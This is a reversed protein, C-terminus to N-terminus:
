DCFEKGGPNTLCGEDTGLARPGKGRYTTTETQTWNGGGIQGGPNTAVKKEDCTTIGRDFTCEDWDHHPSDAFAGGALTALFLSALALVAAARLRIMLLGKM